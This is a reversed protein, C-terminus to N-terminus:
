DDDNRDDQAKRSVYDYRQPKADIGMGFGGDRDRERERERQPAARANGYTTSRNQGGSSSSLVYAGPFERDSSSHRGSAGFNPRSVPGESGEFGHHERTNSPGSTTNYGSQLQSQSQSPPQPAQTKRGPWRDRPDIADDLYSGGDSPYTEMRYSDKLLGTRPTLPSMGGGGGSGRMSAMQQQQQQQQQEWGDYREQLQYAVDGHTQGMTEYLYEDFASTLQAMTQFHKVSLVPAGPRADPDEQLLREHESRHDYYALASAIQFANRIQRGNWRSYGDNASRERYHERAFRMIDQDYIELRPERTSQSRQRDILRLREINMEWIEMTQEEELPPYYVKVQVRSKFAEDLTGTRNTTLFLIGNYYELARLFVSVLSNRIIDSDQRSRQSFFTDVEDLLLIADWLSALRFIEHLADEVEKPRTGLDGCTIPFLPKGTTQAVAEATATKGVGPVGHLLIVLGRGKGIILDHGINEVGHEREVSKNLFHSNVLGQILTKHKRSIKLNEFGKQSASVRKLHRADLQAFRRERLVYAFVRAPLICLDQDGFVYDTNSGHGTAYERASRLFRDEHVHKNRDWEEVGDKLQLVEPQDNLMRARDPGSHERVSVEDFTTVLDCDIPQPNSVVPKWSPCVQFAEIFDVIVDSHVHQSHRIETGESDTVADGNPACPNTWWNYTRYRQKICDLFDQGQRKLDKMASKHNDMFRIPFINLKKIAKEGKFRPIQFEETVACYSEGTWDIYYCQIRFEGGDAEDNVYKRHDLPQVKHQAAPSHLAYVRWASQRISTKHRHEMDASNPLYVLDGTRFLFWIDEFRIKLQSPDSTSDLKEWRRHVPLIRQDVFNVYCHLHSIAEPINDPVYHLADAEEDNSVLSEEDEAPVSADDSEARKELNKLVTRVKEQLHIMLAFPRFFARPLTSWPEGCLRALTALLHPSNLRVRKIWKTDAGTGWEATDLLNAPGLAARRLNTQRRGKIQGGRTAYDMRDQLEQQMEREHLPGSILVDIVYQCEDLSLRNKYEAYNVNRVEPRYTYHRGSTNHDVSISETGARAAEAKQEGYEGLKYELAQVRDSLLRVLEHQTLAIAGNPADLVSAPLLPEEDHPDEVSVVTPEAQARGIGSVFGYSSAM